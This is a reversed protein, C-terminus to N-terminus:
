LFWRFFASKRHTLSLKHNSERTLIIDSKKKLILVMEEFLNQKIPNLNKKFLSKIGLSIRNKNNIVYTFETLKKRKKHKIKCTKVIPMLNVITKRVVKKHNKYNNKQYTKIAKQINRECVAKNGNRMMNNYIKIKLKM